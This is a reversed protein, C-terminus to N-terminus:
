FFRYPIFISVVLAIVVLAIFLISALEFVYYLMKAKEKKITGIFVISVVQLLFIISLLIRNFLLNEVKSFEVASNFCIFIVLLFFNTIVFVKKLDVRQNNKQQNIEVM